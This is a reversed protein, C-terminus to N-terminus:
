IDDSTKLRIFRVKYNNIAFWVLPFIFAYVLSNWLAVYHKIDWIEGFQCMAGCESNVTRAIEMGIFSLSEIAHFPMFVPNDNWKCAYHFEGFYQIWSSLYGLLFGIGSGM